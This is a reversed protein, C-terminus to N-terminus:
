SVDGRRRGLLIHLVLLLPAASGLGWHLASTWERAREGGLYYLGLATGILVLLLGLMLSGSVRNRSRSWAPLVHTGALLGFLLLSAYAIVGHAVLMWHELPHREPGFDGEVRVSHELFLWLLGSVLLLGGIAFVSYRQWPVLRSPHDSNTM